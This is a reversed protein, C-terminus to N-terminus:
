NFYSLFAEKVKKNKITKLIDEKTDNDLGGIEIFEDFEKLLDTDTSNICMKIIDTKNKKLYKDFTQKREESLEYPYQLRYLAYRSKDALYKISKFEKDVNEFDFSANDGWSSALRCYYSRPVDDRNMWVKYKIQDTELSRVTITHPKWKSNPDSACLTYNSFPVIGIWGVNSNPLGGDADVEGHVNPTINDYVTIDERGYCVGLGLSTINSPITIKKAKDPTKYDSVMFAADGLYRVSSPLKPIVPIYAFAYDEVRILNESAFVEKLKECGRFGEEPISIVNDPLYAYELAKMDMFYYPGVIREPVVLKKIVNNGCFAYRLIRVISDKFEFEKGGNSPPVCILTKEDSSIVYDNYSKFFHNDKNIKISKLKKLEAFAKFSEIDELSSPISIESISLLSDTKCKSPDLLYFPIRFAYKDIKKVGEPITIMPCSHDFFEISKLLGDEIELKYLKEDSM